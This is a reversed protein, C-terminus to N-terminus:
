DLDDAGDVGDDDDDARGDDDAPEEKGDGTFKPVVYKNVAWFGAAGAVIALGVKGWPFGPAAGTAPAAGNAAPAVGADAGNLAPMMSGPGVDATIGQNRLLEVEAPTPVRYQEQFEVSGSKPHRIARAVRMHGPSPFVAVLTERLPTDDSDIPPAASDLPQGSGDNFIGNPGPQAFIGDSM